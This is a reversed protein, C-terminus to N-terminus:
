QSELGQSDPDMSNLVVVAHASLAEVPLYPNLVGTIIDYRIQLRARVVLQHVNPANERLWNM